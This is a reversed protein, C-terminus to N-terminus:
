MSEILCFVGNIMGEEIERWFLQLDYEVIMKTGDPSKWEQESGSLVGYDLFRMDESFALLILPFRMLHSTIIHSRSESFSLIMVWHADIQDRCMLGRTLAFEGRAWEIQKDWTRDNIVCHLRQSVGQATLSIPAVCQNEICRDISGCYDAGVWWHGVCDADLECSQIQIETKSNQCAYVFFVNLIIGVFVKMQHPHIV